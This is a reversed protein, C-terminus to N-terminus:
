NMGLKGEGLGQILLRGVHNVQFYIGRRKDFIM